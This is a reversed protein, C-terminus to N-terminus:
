MGEVNELKAILAKLQKLHKTERYDMDCGSAAYRQQEQGNIRACDAKLMELAEMFHNRCHQLMAKNHKHEEPSECGNVIYYAPEGMEDHDTDVEISAPTCQKELKYINM